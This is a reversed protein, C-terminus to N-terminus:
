DFEEYDDDMTKVEYGLFALLNMIYDVCEFHAYEVNDNILYRDGICISEGCIDCIHKTKKTEYCPCGPPCKSQLCYNCM